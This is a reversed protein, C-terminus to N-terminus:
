SRRLCSRISHRLSTFKPILAATVIVLSGILVPLSVTESFIFWGILAAWVLRLYDFLAISSAQALRVAQTAAGHAAVSFLAVLALAAFSRMSPWQWVSLALPACILCLGVYLYFLIAMNGAYMTQKRSILFSIAFLFTALLVLGGGQGFWGPGPPAIIAVGVFGLAAGALHGREPKERLLLLGGIVIFAPTAFTLAIAEAFPIRVLGMILLIMAGANTLARLGHWPLADRRIHWASHRWVLPLILLLCFLNRWFAVLFPHLEVWRMSAHTFATGISAAIAWQAGTM